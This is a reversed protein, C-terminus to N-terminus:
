AEAFFTALLMLIFINNVIIHAALSLWVSRKRWAMWSMPLFGIVLSPWRWPTWLHYLSFLVSNIVPAGSKFRDIRPLLHGRFYLEEAVPGLFGNFIFFCALLVILMGTGIADGGEVASMQLIADPLWTFFREAIWTDLVLQSATIFVLMWAALGAALLALRRRPLRERYDVASLVHWSGTTRKAYLALYGLELPVIVVGIGLLFAFLADIGRAELLPSVLLVFTALAAGPFLHLVISLWVPHQESGVAERSEVARSRPTLLTGSM